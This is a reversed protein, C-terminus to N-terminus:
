GDRVRTRAPIQRVRTHTSYSSSQGGTPTYKQMKLPPIPINKKKRKKHPSPAVRCRQRVHGTSTDRDVPASGDLPPPPLPIHTGPTCAHLPTCAHVFLPYVRPGVRPRCRNAPFHTAPRSAPKKQVRRSPTEERATMSPEISQSKVSQNVRFVFLPSRVFADRANM